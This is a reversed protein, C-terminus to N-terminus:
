GLLSQDKDTENSEAKKPALGKSELPRGRSATLKLLGSQRYNLLDAFTPLKAGEEALQPSLPKVQPTGHLARITLCTDAYIALLESYDNEAEDTLYNVFVGSLFGYEVPKKLIVEAKKENASIRKLLEERQRGTLAESIFDVPFAFAEGQQRKTKKSAPEANDDVDNDSEDPDSFEIGQAEFYDRLQRQLAPQLNRSGNKFESLYQRHIGTAKNLEAMNTGLATVAEIFDDRSLIPAGSVTAAKPPTFKITM